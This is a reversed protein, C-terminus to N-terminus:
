STDVGAALVVYVALNRPMTSLAVVTAAPPVTVAVIVMPRPIGAIPHAEIRRGRRVRRVQIPPIQVSRPVPRRAAQGPRGHRERHRGRRAGAM